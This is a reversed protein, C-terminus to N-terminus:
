GTSAGSAPGPGARVGGAQLSPAAHGGARRLLARLRAALEGMDFPKVLYDDAGSDLGSIRDAVTDRATLILVPLSCDRRRLRQLVTLGCLGPLGLDLVMAAYEGTLLATDAQAGDRLWDVAHGAQQLGAQIADGLLADDEVLLIRM